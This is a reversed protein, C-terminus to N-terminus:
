RGLLDDYYAGVLEVYSRLRAGYRRRLISEAARAHAVDAREDGRLRGRWLVREGSRIVFDGHADVEARADIPADGDGDGDGDLAPLSAPDALPAESVGRARAEARAREEAARREAERAPATRERERRQEEDSQRREREREDLLADLEAAIARAGDDADGLAGVALRDGTFPELGDWSCGWERLEAGVIVFAVDLYGEQLPYDGMRSVFSEAVRGDRVLHYDHARDLRGGSPTVFRYGTRELAVERGEVLVDGGATRWCRRAGADM